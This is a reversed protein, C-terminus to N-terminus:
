INKKHTLRHFIETDTFKDDPRIGVRRRIGSVGSSDGGRVFIVAKGEDKTQFFKIQEKLIKM